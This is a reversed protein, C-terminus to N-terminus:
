AAEKMKCGYVKHAYHPLASFFNSNFVVDHVEEDSDYLHNEVYEKGKSTLRKTAIQVTMIHRMLLSIDMRMMYGSTTVIM